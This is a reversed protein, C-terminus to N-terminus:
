SSNYIIIEKSILLLLGFISLIYFCPIKLFQPWAYRHALHQNTLIWMGKIKQPVAVRYQWIYMSIDLIMYMPTCANFHSQSKNLKGYINTIVPGCFVKSFLNGLEIFSVLFFAGANPSCKDCDTLIPVLKVYHMPNRKHCESSEIM